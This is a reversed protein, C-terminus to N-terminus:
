RRIFRSAPIYKGTKTDWYGHSGVPGLYSGTRPNILGRGMPPFYMGDAMAGRMSQPSDDDDLGVRLGFRGRQLASRRNDTLTEADAADAGNDALRPQGQFNAIMLRAAGRQAETSNPDALQNMAAAFAAAGGDRMQAQGIINNRAADRQQDRERDRMMHAQALLGHHAGAGHAEIFNQLTIGQAELEKQNRRYQQVIEYRTTKKVAAAARADKGEQPPADAAAEYALM